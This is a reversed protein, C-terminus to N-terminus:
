AAEKSDDEKGKAEDSAKDTELSTPKNEREEDIGEPAVNEGKPHQAEWIRYKAMMAWEKMSDCGIGRRPAKM